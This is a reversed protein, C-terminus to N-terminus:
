KEAEKDTPHGYARMQAYIRTTAVSATLWIPIAPWHATFEGTLCDHLVVLGSCIATVAALRHAIRLRTV